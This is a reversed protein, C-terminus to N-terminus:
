KKLGGVYNCNQTIENWWACKERKCEISRENMEIWINFGYGRSMIQENELVAKTLYPCMM